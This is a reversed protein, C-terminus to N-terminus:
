GTERTAEGAGPAAAAVRPAGGAALELARAVAADADICGHGYKTSHGNVYDAADGIRRATSCIVERLEAASLDPNAGLVLGCIGAVLPCASSTGEFEAYYDGPKYGRSREVGSGDIYTGTVDSTTVGLGGRGASPACIAIERGTQSYSARRDLSTCAAVAIVDPHTAFGNQTRPPDNVDKGSNGAAFVVVAGKGGRGETACRHIAQSVRTPLPYVAAEANWSCSVVWAGHDTAYDFWEAVNLPSLHETMRLPMLTANPAAGVIEGGGSKGMAVGACATGHWDGGRQDFLDPEPTVDATGRIFDRPDVSKGALDPHTLDFGDDIVAIVTESSGLSGLRRWAAVVRADAGAKLGARNGDIEGRNELHWQRALMADSPLFSLLNRPTILDPEALAVAPEAQLDAALRVGDRTFTRVTHFGGSASVLELDYRLIVDTIADADADPEFRLFLTGEPVFPVEDDSTHYVSVSERVDRSRGLASIEAAAEVEPMRMDVIEFRGLRGRRETAKRTGLSQLTSELSRARGPAPSVAVQTASERFAVEYGGIRLPIVDAM